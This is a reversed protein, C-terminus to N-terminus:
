APNRQQLKQARLRNLGAAARVAEIGAKRRNAANEVPDGSEITHPKPSGSQMTNVIPSNM